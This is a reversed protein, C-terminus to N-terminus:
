KKPKKGLKADIFPKMQDFSRFGRKMRGNIFFTPTSRVGAKIGEKRDNKIRGRVEEDELCAEFKKENLKMEKVYTKVTEDLTDVKISRANDFLRHMMEWFADKDQDGACEAAVAGDEAWKHNRLPFHKYVWQVEKKKYTKYLEEEFALHAKRCYGCQLDSFEILKVPARKSGKYRGKKTNIVDMRQKDYDVETEFVAGWIYKKEDETMYVTQKQRKMTVPIELFGPFESATPTGIKIGKTDFENLAQALNEAFKEKDFGFGSTSLLVATIFLPIMRKM